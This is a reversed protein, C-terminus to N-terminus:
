PHAQPPPGEPRQAHQLVDPQEGPRALPDVVRDLLQLVPDAPERGVLALRDLEGAADSARDREDVAAAGDARRGRLAPLGLAVLVRLQRGEEVRVGLQAVVLHRTPALRAVDGALGDGRDPETVIELVWLHDPAAVEAPLHEVLHDGPDLLPMRRALAPPA